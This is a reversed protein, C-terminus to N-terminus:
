GPRLAYIAPYNMYRHRDDMGYGAFWEPGDHRFGVHDPSFVSDARLRHILVCTRVENAGRALLRSRVVALTRGSDCIDDVLLVHRGACEFDELSVQVNDEPQLVQTTGYSRCRVFAPQISTPIAKLLDGFFVFAGRLICLGLAQEYQEAEMKLAWPTLESALRAVTSQIEETSFVERYHSPVHRIVSVPRLNLPVM